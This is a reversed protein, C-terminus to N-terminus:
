TKIEQLEEIIEAIRQAEIFLKCNEKNKCKCTAVRIVLNTNASILKKMLENLKQIEQEAQATQLQGSPVAVQSMQTAEVKENGDNSMTEM